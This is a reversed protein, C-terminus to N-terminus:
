HNGLSAKVYDDFDTPFLKYDNLREGSLCNERFSEAHVEYDLMKSYLPWPYGFNNKNRKILGIIRQNNPLLTDLCRRRWIKQADGSDGNLARSSYPGYEEFIHRNKDLLDNVERLLEKEDRVVPIDFFSQIKRSHERKWTRMEDVSFKEELEDVVKHCFLCLMILNDYGNKDIYQALGHESRPGQEGAGIIHAINALSVSEDDIEAFLYRNCTPNECYGGCQAWLKRRINEPISQRDM